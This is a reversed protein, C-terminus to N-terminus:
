CSKSFCRGYFNSYYTGDSVSEDAYIRYTIEQVAIEGINKIILIKDCKYPLTFIRKNFSKYINRNRFILIKENKRFLFNYYLKM